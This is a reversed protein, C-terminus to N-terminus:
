QNMSWKQNNMEQAVLAPKMRPTLTALCDDGVSIGVWRPHGRIVGIDVM